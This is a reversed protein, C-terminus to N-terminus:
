RRMQWCCLPGNSLSAAAPVPSCASCSNDNISTVAQSHTYILPLPHHPAPTRCCDRLLCPPQSRAQENGAAIIFPIVTQRQPPTGRRPRWWPVCPPWPKPLKKLSDLRPWRCSRSQPKLHTLGSTLIIISMFGTTASYANDPNLRLTEWYYHYIGLRNVWSLKEDTEGHGNHQPRCFRRKLTLFRTKRVGM